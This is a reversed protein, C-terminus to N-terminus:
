NVTATAPKRNLRYGFVIATVPLAISILFGALAGQSYEPNANYSNFIQPLLDIAAITNIGLFVFGAIVLIRSLTKNNM